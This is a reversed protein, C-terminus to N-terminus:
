GGTVSISTVVFSRQCLGIADSTPALEIGFRSPVIRCDQSAPDNFHGTVTAPVGVGPPTLHASPLLNVALRTGEPTTATNQPSIYWAGYYYAASMWDPTLRAYFIGGCGGCASSYGQLTLSQNGYCAAAKVFGIDALQQVTTPAPPCSGGPVQPAPPVLPASGLSWTTGDPSRWLDRGIGAATSDTWGVGVVASQGAALLTPLGGGFADAALTTRTWSLGDNSSMVVRAYTALDFGFIFGGSGAGTIATPRYGVLQQTAAADAQWHIALSGASGELSGTSVNCADDLVPHMPNCTIAVLNSGVQLLGAIVSHGSGTPSSVPEWRVGDASAFMAPTDGGSGSQYALFGHDLVLASSYGAYGLSLSARTWLVGDPSTWVTQDSRGLGISYAGGTIAFGSPGATVALASTITDATWNANSTWNKGDTSRWVLGKDPGPSTNALLIWASPGVAMDKVGGFRTADISQWSSGDSTGRLIVSVASTPPNTGPADGIALFGDPIAVLRGISAPEPIVVPVSTPAISASQSPAPTGSGQPTASPEPTASAVVLVFPVKLLGSGIALAAGLTAVLLLTAAVLLWRVSTRRRATAGSTMRELDAFLGDAFAARPEAPEDLSRFLRTLQEDNM